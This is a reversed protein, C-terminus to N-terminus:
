LTLNFINLADGFARLAVLIAIIFPTIINLEMDLGALFIGAFMFRQGTVWRQILTQGGDEVKAWGMM